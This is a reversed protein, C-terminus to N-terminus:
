DTLVLTVAESVVEIEVDNDGYIAHTKINELQEAIWRYKNTRNENRAIAIMELVMTVREIDSNADISLVKLSQFREIYYDM